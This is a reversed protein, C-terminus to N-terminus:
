LGIISFILSKEVQLKTAIADAKLDNLLEMAKESRFCLTMMKFVFIHPRIKSYGVFVM